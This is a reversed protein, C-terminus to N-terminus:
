PSLMCSRQPSEPALQARESHSFFAFSFMPVADMWTLKGLDKLLSDLFHGIFMTIRERSWPLQM